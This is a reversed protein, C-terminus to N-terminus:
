VLAEASQPRAFALDYTRALEELAGRHGSGHYVTRLGGRRLDESIQDADRVYAVTTAQHVDLGV